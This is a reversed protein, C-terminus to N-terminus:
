DGQSGEVSRLAERRGGAGRATMWISLGWYYAMYGLSVAVIWPNPDPLQVVLVAYSVLWVLTLTLTLGQLARMRSPYLYRIPVFVLIAFLVLVAATVLKGLDLVIVYFALVNWYSPWGLFFHDSTKADVRCFQYCSALLPLAALGWGLVGAPLYGATWLLVLPAFVYTLYDVINDLLAGDFWPITEKVRFHRALMGDTGDIFLAALGLWLATKVEGEFAAFVILLGLVSGSATYLHVAAGALRFALSFAQAPAATEGDARV